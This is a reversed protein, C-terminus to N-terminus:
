KPRRFVPLTLAEEVSWGRSDIRESITTRNLGTKESWEALSLTLGDHTILRNKRSNRGQELTSAWQCNEPTYDGDNDIRDLSHGKPKEGMDEYFNEFSNKWRDCVKIGRGGWNKFRTANPDYCRQKM